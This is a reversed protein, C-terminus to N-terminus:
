IPSLLVLIAEETLNSEKSLVQVGSSKYSWQPGTIQALFPLMIKSIDPLEDAREFNERPVSM